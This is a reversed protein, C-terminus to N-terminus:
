AKAAGAKIVSKILEDIEPQSKQITASPGVCKFFVNGEPAEVIAGSLSWGPKKGGSQMMPGSPSLYTGSVAILHVKLGNVTKESKKPASAGEFQGVWRALNEEVGGGQGTGFYFVGCEGAEAGAAGPITYTAVRMPKAGAVQWRAPVTWRVGGASGEVLALLATAAFAATLVLLPKRTHRM